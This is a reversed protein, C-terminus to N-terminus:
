LHYLLTSNCQQKHSCANRPVLCLMPTAASTRCAWRAAAATVGANDTSAGPQMLLGRMDPLVLQGIERVAVSADESTAVDGAAQLALWSYTNFPGLVFLLAIAKCCLLQHLQGWAPPQRSQDDSDDRSLLLQQQQQEQGVTVVMSLPPAGLAHQVEQQQQQPQQWPQQQEDISDDQQWLQQQQQQQQQQAQVEEMSDQQEFLVMQEAVQLTLLDELQGKCAFVPLLEGPDALGAAEWWAQREAFCRQLAQWLQQPSSGAAVGGTGAAATTSGTAQRSSAATGGAAADAAICDDAVAEAALQVLLAALLMWPHPLAEAAAAAETGSGDEAAAAAAAADLAAADLHALLGQVAHAACSSCHGCQQMLGACCRCCLCAPLPMVSSLCPVRRSWEIDAWAASFMQQMVCSGGCWLEAGLVLLRWSGSGSGHARQAPGRRAVAPIGRPSCRRRGGQVAGLAWPDALVVELCLAVYEHVLAPSAAAGAAAAAGGGDTSGAGAAAGPPAERPLQQQLLLALLSLAAPSRASAGVAARAAEGAEAARGSLVLSHSLLLSPLSAAPAMDLARQLLKIADDLDAQSGSSSSSAASGAVAAAAERRPQLPVQLPGLMEKARQQRWEARSSSSSRPRRQQGGAAANTLGLAQDLWTRHKMYGALAAMHYTFSPNTRSSHRSLEQSLLALGQRVESPRCLNWHMVALEIQAAQRMGTEHLLVTAVKRIGRKVQEHAVTHQQLLEVVNWMVEVLLQFAAGVAGATNATHIGEPQCALLAGVAGAATCYDCSLMAHRMVAGLNLRHQRRVRAINSYEESAITQIKPATGEKDDLDDPYAGDM